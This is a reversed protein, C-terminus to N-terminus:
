LFNKIILNKEYYSSFDQFVELFTIIFLQQINDTKKLFNGEMNKKRWNCTFLYGVKNEQHDWGERQHHEQGHGPEPQPGDASREM